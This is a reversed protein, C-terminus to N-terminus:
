GSNPRAELISQELRTPTIKTLSFGAATLLHQFEAETRMQGGSLGVLMRLDVLKAKLPANPTFIREVILLRGKNRMAQFCNRLIQLAQSADWNHLVYRLLYADAGAPVNVFFDGKIFECREAVGVKEMASRGNKLTTDRQEFLISHLKPYQLLLTMLLNGEGGGVDMLKEITAFPYATAIATDQQKTLEVMADDFREAAAPNQEFYQYRNLGFAHEFASKGTRLSYLLGGWIAYDQEARMILFNRVSGPVESRLLQGLPALQFQQPAIETVVNVEALVRLLRYLADSQTQTAAAITDCHKPGEVLLDAINLEAVAFLCQSIEFGRGLNLLAERTDNIEPM